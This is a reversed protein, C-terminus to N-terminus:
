EESDVVKIYLIDDIPVIYVSRGDIVSQVALYQQNSFLLYLDGVTRFSDTTTPEWHIDDIIKYPAYLEVLPHSDKAMIGELRGWADAFTHPFLVLVIVILCPFIKSIIRGDGIRALLKQDFLIMLSFGSTAVCLLIAFGSLIPYTTLAPTLGMYMVFLLLTLVYWVLYFIIFGYELRPYHDGYYWPTSETLYLVFRAFMAAFALSILFRYDQTGFYIYDWFDLNVITDPIGITFYYATSYTRGTFYLLYGFAPLGALIGNLVRNNTTKLEL